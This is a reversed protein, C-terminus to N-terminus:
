TRPDREIQQASSLEESGPPFGPFRPPRREQWSTIGERLDPWTFSARTYDDASLVAPLPQELDDERLQQKMTAIARPSCNTALDRAYALAQALVDGAPLCFEALGYALADRGSIVRASLLLDLARGRGVQRQLAWSVGHEAILGRRAFATTLKADEAVFRVDAQLAIALGVGACSGNVAAIVATAMTPPFWRADRQPLPPGGKVLEAMPVSLDAGACFGRGAGTVVVARTGADEDAEALLEFYRREMSATWANLVGPRNLTVLLVGDSREVLLEAV